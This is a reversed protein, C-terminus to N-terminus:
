YIYLKCDIKDKTDIAKVSHMKKHIQYAIIFFNRLIKIKNLKENKIDFNCNKEIVFGM